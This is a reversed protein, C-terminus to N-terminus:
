LTLIFGLAQYFLQLLSPHPVALQLQVQSQQQIADVLLPMNNVTKAYYSNMSQGAPNTRTGVLLLGNDVLRQQVLLPNSALNSDKLTVQEVKKHQFTQMYGM